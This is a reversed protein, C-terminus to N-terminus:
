GLSRQAWGSQRGTSSSSIKIAKRATLQFLAFWFQTCMNKLDLVYKEYAKCIEKYHFLLSYTSPTPWFDPGQVAFCFPTFAGFNNCQALM